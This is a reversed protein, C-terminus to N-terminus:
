KAFNFYNPRARKIAGSIVPVILSTNGRSASEILRNFAYVAAFKFAM